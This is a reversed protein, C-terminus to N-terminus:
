CEDGLQLDRSWLLRGERGWRAAFCGVSSDGVVVLTGSVTVAAEVPIEGRGLGWRSEWLLGGDLGLRRVLVRAAVPAPDATVSYAAQGLAVAFAAAGPQPAAAGAPAAALALSLVVASGPWRM